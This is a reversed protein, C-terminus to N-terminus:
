EYQEFEGAIYLKELNHGERLERETADCLAVLSGSRSLIFLCDPRLLANTMLNTNHTTLVVQIGAYRKKLYKVLKESMEYHFFADFEDMYVFSPERKKAIYKRYFNTLSITGSSANEYFSLPIDHDFFLENHGDVTKGIRLKCDVGMTNLFMEFDKLHDEEDLYDFFSDYMVSGFHGIQENVSSMMMRSAFDMIKIIPSDAAFVTNFTLYRLFPIDNDLVVEDERDNEGDLGISEGVYGDINLSEANIVSLNLEKFAKEKAYYEYIVKDDIVLKEEVVATKSDRAYKYEATNEGFDFEYEFRVPMQSNDANAIRKKRDVKNNGFLVSPLDVIARGLNTKGTSNRGYIIMKGLKEHAICDRNFQYGGVESFDWNVKGKFNKYNEVSFRRLM